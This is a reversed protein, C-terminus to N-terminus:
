GSIGKWRKANPSPVALIDALREAFGRAMESLDAPKTYFAPMPPCIIAGARHAKLMNELHIGNLPTERAALLLPRREKLTVDAARHILNQGNGNAIAALSGMTCPVVVMGNYLSSGSAMPATFDNINYWQSVGPLKQVSFGLELQLVKEGAESIIGHIEHGSDALIRLFELAYLSGSAGTIAIIFKKSVMM